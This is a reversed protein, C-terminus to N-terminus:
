IEMTELMVANVKKVDFRKEAYRRSELGMKKVDEPHALMWLMKEALEQYDGPEIMFGNQGNITEKCGPGNTTLIARGISMAELVAHPVGERYYSPLVFVTCKSLATPMDEVVGLYEITGDKIYYELEDQKIGDLSTDFAGALMFRAEHHTKRVIRAAEIYTRIGKTVLLRAALFFSVTNDLESYPFANLDIGSGDIIVCKQRKVIGRTILEEADDSNQFFVKTSCLFAIRYLISIVARVMKNKVSNGTFAYGLGNITPYIRKVGAMRAAISGYINPKATYSHVVDYQAAKFKKYYLYLTKVDAIPNLGGRVFPVEVFKIHLDRCRDVCDTTFGCLTIEYHRDQMEKLLEARLSFFPAVKGSCIMVKMEVGCEVM